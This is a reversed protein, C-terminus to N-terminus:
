SNWWRSGCLWLGLIYPFVFCYM